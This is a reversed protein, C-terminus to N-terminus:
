CVAEIGCGVIGAAVKGTEQTVVPGAERDAVEPLYLVSTFPWCSRPLTRAMAAM